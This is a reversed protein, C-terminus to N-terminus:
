KHKASFLNVGVTGGLAAAAINALYFSYQTFTPAQDFGLYQFFLSFLSYLLGTLAGILLGRSKMKSGSIVGGIFLAVISIIIPLLSHGDDSFSTFRLLSAMLFASGLVILISACIGYTMATLWNRAM